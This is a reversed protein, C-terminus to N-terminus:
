IVWCGYLMYISMIAVRLGVESINQHWSWTFLGVVMVKSFICLFWISTRIRNSMNIRMILFCGSIICLTFGEVLFVSHYYGYENLFEYLGVM